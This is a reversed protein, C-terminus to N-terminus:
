NQKKARRVSYDHAQLKQEQEPLLENLECEKPDQAFFPHSLAQKVTLRHAPNVKLLGEILDILSDPWKTNKTLTERLQRGYFKRPRLEQFL